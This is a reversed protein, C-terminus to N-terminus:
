SGGRVSGGENDLPRLSGRILRRTKESRGAGSCCQRGRGRGEKELAFRQGEKAM